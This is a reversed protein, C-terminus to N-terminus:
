FVVVPFCCVGGSLPRQFDLEGRPSDSVCRVALRRKELVVPLPLLAQSYLLVEIDDGASLLM